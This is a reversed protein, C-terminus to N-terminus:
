NEAIAIKSLFKTTFVNSYDFQYLGDKAVVIALGNDAIVDFAELSNIERIKKLNRVDATNYIKLGDKGDCIFLVKGDKALGHPNFMPYSKIVTPQLLNRVDVVDLQNSADNCFTGARLTVFAYDDDAVVPDCAKMHSMQGLFSPSSPTAIDYIFMGSRSGIFLRDKFPYITEIDWGLKNVKELKPLQLDSISFSSLEYTSVTYLYDNVISFRATSGATGKVVASSANAIMGSNDQKMFSESLLPNNNTCQVMTDRELYSAVVKVSDGNVNRWYNYSRDKFINELINKVSVNEPTSIDFVVLDSYSDAYLYNGKVAIDFNGPINIFAINKPQSPNANDIIHVGENLENLFIYKDYVYIKGPQKLSQAPGSKMAARVEKLTKYVPTYLTIARWCEDGNERSCHTFGVIIFSCICLYLTAAFFKKMTNKQKSM